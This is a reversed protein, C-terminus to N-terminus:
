RSYVRDEHAAGQGGNAEDDDDDNGNIKNNRQKAHTHLWHELVWPFAMRELEGLPLGVM